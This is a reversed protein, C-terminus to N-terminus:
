VPPPPCTLPYLCHASNCCPALGPWADEERNRACKKGALEVCRLVDISNRVRAIKAVEDLLMPQM